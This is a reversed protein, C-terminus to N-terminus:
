GWWSSNADPYYGHENDMIEKWRKEDVLTEILRASGSCDHYSYYDQEELRLFTKEDSLLIFVPELYTKKRRDTEFAKIAVITQGILEKFM